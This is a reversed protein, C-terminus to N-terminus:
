KKVLEVRRNQARGEDSGHDAVPRSDSDRPRLTPVGFSGLVVRHNGADDAVAVRESMLAVAVVPGFLGALKRDRTM